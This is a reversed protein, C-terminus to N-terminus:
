PEYRTQWEEKPGALWFLTDEFEGNENYCKAIVNMTVWDGDRKVWSKVFKGM